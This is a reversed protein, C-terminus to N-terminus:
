RGVCAAPAGKSGSLHSSLDLVNFLLTLFPGFDSITSSATLDGNGAPDEREPSGLRGLRM